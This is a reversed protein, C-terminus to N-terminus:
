NGHLAIRPIAFRPTKSPVFLQEGTTFGARYQALRTMTRVYANHFGYPYALFLFKQWTLSELIRKPKTLEDWLDVPNSYTLLPNTKSHLGLTVLPHKALKLIDASSLFETHPLIDKDLGYRVSLNDLQGMRKQYSGKRLLDCHSQYIDTRNKVSSQQLRMAFINELPEQQILCFGSTLFITVPCNFSEFVPLGCDIIDHYGHNFTLSFAPRDSVFDNNLCQSLSLKQWHEHRKFFAKLADVTITTDTYPSPDQLKSPLIRHGYLISIGQVAPINQLKM